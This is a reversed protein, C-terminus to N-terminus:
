LHPYFDISKAHIKRAKKFKKRFIISFSPLPHCRSPGGPQWLAIRPPAPGPYNSCPRAPIPPHCRNALVLSHLHRRSTLVPCSQAARTSKSATLKILGGLDPLFFRLLLPYGRQPHAIKAQFNFLINSYHFIITSFLLSEPLNVTAVGKKKLKQLWFFPTASM